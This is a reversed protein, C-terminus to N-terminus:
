LILLENIQCDNDDVIRLNVGESNLFPIPVEFTYPLDGSTITASYVCYTQGTNCVYIDFPTQGSIDNITIDIPM